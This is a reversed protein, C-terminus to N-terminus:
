LTAGRSSSALSPQRDILEHVIQTLREVRERTDALEAKVSALAPDLEPDIEYRSPVELETVARLSLRTTSRAHVHFLSRTKKWDGNPELVDAGFGLFVGRPVRSVDVWEGTEDRPLFADRVPLVTDFRRYVFGAWPKRAVMGPELMPNKVAGRSDISLHLLQTEM